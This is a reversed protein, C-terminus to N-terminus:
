GVPINSPPSPSPPSPSVIPPTSMQSSRRRGQQSPPLPPLSSRQMSIPQSNASPIRPRKTYVHKLQPDIQSPKLPQDRQSPSRRGMLEKVTNVVNQYMVQNPDPPPVRQRPVMSPQYDTAPPYMGAPTPFQGGTMSWPIVMNRRDRVYEEM